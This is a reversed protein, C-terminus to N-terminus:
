KLADVLGNVWDKGMRRNITYIQDEYEEKLRLADLIEEVTMLEGDKLIAAGDLELAQTYEAM